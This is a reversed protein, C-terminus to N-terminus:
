NGGNLWRVRDAAEERTGWDSDPHWRGTPDYFGVTFLREIPSLLYVWMM